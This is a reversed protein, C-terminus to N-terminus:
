GLSIPTIQLIPVQLGELRQRTPADIMGEVM